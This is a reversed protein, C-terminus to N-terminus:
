DRCWSRSSSSRDRPISCAVAKCRVNERARARPWGARPTAVSSSFGSCCRRRCRRIIVIIIVVVVAAVAAAAVVFFRWTVSPRSARFVSGTGDWEGEGGGRGRFISLQRRDIKRAGAVRANIKVGVRCRRHRAGVRRKQFDDRSVHKEKRFLRKRDNIRSTANM